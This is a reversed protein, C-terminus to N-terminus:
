GFCKVTSGPNMRKSHKPLIEKMLVVKRVTVLLTIM